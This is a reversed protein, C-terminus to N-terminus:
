CLNLLKDELEGFRALSCGFDAELEAVAVANRKRAHDGALADGLGQLLVLEQFLDGVVEHREQPPVDHDALVHLLVLFVHRCLAAEFDGSRFDVAQHFVVLLGAAQGSVPLEIRFADLEIDALRAWSGCGTHMTRFLSASLMAAAVASAPASVAVSARQATCVM